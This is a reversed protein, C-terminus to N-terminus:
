RKIPISGKSQKSQEHLRICHCVRLVNEQVTSLKTICSFCVSICIRIVSITALILFLSTHGTLSHTSNLAGGSVIYTMVSASISQNSNLPVKLVTLSYM